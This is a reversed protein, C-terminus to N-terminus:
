TILCITHGERTLRGSAELAALGRYLAEHTVALEQALQKVSTSLEYRGSKGETQLLHIIRDQVRPLSLRENQLRLARLEASLMQIWREAFGVDSALVEQMSKLPIQVLETTRTARADCHYRLSTLSAEGIFGSQCRQLCSVEGRSGVRELVVEGDTVFLMWKPTSGIRFLLENPAASRPKCLAHLSDPLLAALQDQPRPNSTM